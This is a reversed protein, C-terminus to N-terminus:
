STTLFYFSVFGSSDVYYSHYLNHFYRLCLSIFNLWIILLIWESLTMCISSLFFDSRYCFCFQFCLCPLIIWQYCIVHLYVIACFASGWHTVISWLSPSVLGSMLWSGSAWIRVVLFGSNWHIVTEHEYWLLCEFFIVMSFRYTWCRVM